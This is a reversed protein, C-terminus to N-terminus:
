LALVAQTDPKTIRKSVLIRTFIKALNGRIKDSDLIGEKKIWRILIGLMFLAGTGGKRVFRPSWGERV